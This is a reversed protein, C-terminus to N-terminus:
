LIQSFLILLLDSKPVSCTFSASYLKISRHKKFNFSVVKEMQDIISIDQPTREDKFFHTM